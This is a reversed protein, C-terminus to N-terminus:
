LNELTIESHCSWCTENNNKLVRACKICYFTNCIPCLYINNAKIKGKHVICTIEREEINIESETKKLEKLAEESLPIETLYLEQREKKPPKSNQNNMPIPSLQEENIQNNQSPITFTEPMRKQPLSESIYDTKIESIKRRRIIGHSLIGISWGITLIILIWNPFRFILYNSSFIFLITAIFINIHIMFAFKYRNVKNKVERSFEM